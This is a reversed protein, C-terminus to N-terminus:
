PNPPSLPGAVLAGNLEGVPTATSATPLTYIASELLLTMRRSVGVLGSAGVMM